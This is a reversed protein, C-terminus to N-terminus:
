AKGELQSLMEHPAFVSIDEFGHLSLLQKDVTILPAKLEKALALYCADYATLKTQAALSFASEMLDATATVMLALRGLDALDAKSEAPPRSTKWTLKLLVNACEIYFLDPVHLSLRPQNDLRAFLETVAQSFEEEVFLQIGASADIVLREPASM